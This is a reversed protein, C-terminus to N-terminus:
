VPWTYVDGNESQTCILTINCPKSLMQCTKFYKCTTHCMLKTSLHGQSTRTAHYIANNIILRTQVQVEVLLSIKEVAFGFGTFYLYQVTTFARNLKKQRLEMVCYLRVHRDVSDLEAIGCCSTIRMCLTNGECDLTCEQTIQSRM